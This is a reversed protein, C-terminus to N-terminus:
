GLSALLFFLPFFKNKTQGKKKALSVSRYNLHLIFISRTNLSSASRDLTLNSSRISLCYYWCTFQRAAGWNKKKLTHIPFNHHSTALVNLCHLISGPQNPQPSTPDPNLINPQALLTNFSGWYLPFFFAPNLPPQTLLKIVRETRRNKWLVTFTCHVGVVLSSLRGTYLFKM